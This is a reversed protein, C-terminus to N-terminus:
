FNFVLFSFNNAFSSSFITCEFMIKIQSNQYKIRALSNIRRTVDTIFQSHFLLELWYRTENAEKLSIHFKNIFDPKSIAFESESISAGISTGSRLLQKSLVFEKKEVIQKYASVIAIAFQFSKEKLPNNKTM